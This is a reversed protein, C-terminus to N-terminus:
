LWRIWGSGVPFGLDPLMAGNRAKLAGDVGGKQGAGSLPPHKQVNPNECRGCLEYTENRHFHTWMKSFDDGVNRNPSFVWASDDFSLCLVLLFCLDLESEIGDPQNMPIKSLSNYYSM